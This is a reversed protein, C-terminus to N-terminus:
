PKLDILVLFEPKLNSEAVGYTVNKVSISLGYILFFSIATHPLHKTRAM